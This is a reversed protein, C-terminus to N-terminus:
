TSLDFYLIILQLSRIAWSYRVKKMSGPLRSGNRNNCILGCIAAMHSGVFQTYYSLITNKFINQTIKIDKTHHALARYYLEAM